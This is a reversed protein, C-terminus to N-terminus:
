REFTEIRCVNVWWQITKLSCFSERAFITSINLLKKTKKTALVKFNGVYFSVKCLFYVWVAFYESSYFIVVLGTKM